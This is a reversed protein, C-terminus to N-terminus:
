NLNIDFRGDVSDGFTSQSTVTNKILFPEINFALLKVLQLRNKHSILLEDSMFNIEKIFKNLDFFHYKKNLCIANYMLSNLQGIKYNNQYPLSQSYPFACLIIKDIGSKEVLELTQILKTIGARNVNLSEGLLIILTTETDFTDKSIFECIQNLTAHHHCNNIINQSLRYNLLPALGAGLKDSYM